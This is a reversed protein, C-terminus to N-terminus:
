IKECAKVFLYCLGMAVIGLLFMAPLWVALNMSVSRRRTKQPVSMRARRNIKRRVPWQSLRRLRTLATILLGRRLTLFTNVGHQGFFWLIATVAAL